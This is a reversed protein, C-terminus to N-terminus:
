FKSFNQYSTTAFRMVDAPKDHEMVMLADPAVRRIDQVLNQWDLTGEGVDAWGDEDQKQGAPALDKVHVSSLRSGYKAVWEAPDAHGRQVWALDGEWTIDPAETLLIDMPVGGDALPVLEFDHNHWGFDYGADRVKENVVNLRKAISSYGASNLPRDELALYCIYLHQMGLTEAIALQGSFDQELDLLNFHGSPMSMGAADLAARFTQAQPYIGAYGEVQTYGIGSLASLFEAQSEVERSSYLQFSVDM